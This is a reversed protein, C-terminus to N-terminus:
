PMVDAWYPKAGYYSYVKDNYGQDWNPEADTDFAPAGELQQKDLNVVYGGKATDYKLLSWPLPHYKEGVGLFGGFSMVAYGINGSRKDIMLEHISGIEEGATNYVYTGVVKESSILNTTTELVNDM